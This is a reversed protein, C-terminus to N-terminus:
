DPFFRLPPPQALQPGVHGEGEFLLNSLSLQRQRALSRGSERFRRHTFHLM